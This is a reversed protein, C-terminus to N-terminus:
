RRAAPAEKTNCTRDDRWFLNCHDHISVLHVWGYTRKQPLRFFSIKLLIESRPDLLDM